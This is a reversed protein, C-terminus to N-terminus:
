VEDPALHGSPTDPTGRYSLSPSGAVNVATDTDDLLESVAAEAAKQAAELARIRNEQKVIVAKLKRIEEYIKQIEKDQLGFFFIM